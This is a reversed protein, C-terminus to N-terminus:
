ESLASSASFREFLPETQGRKLAQRLEISQLAAQLFSYGENKVPSKDVRYSCCTKRRLMILRVIICAPNM